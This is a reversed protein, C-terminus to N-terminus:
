LALSSGLNLDSQQRPIVDNNWNALATKFIIFCCRAANDFIGTVIWIVSQRNAGKWEKTLFGNVNGVKIGLPIGCMSPADGAKLRADAAKAQELAIEPTAHVVANLAQAGDAAKLCAETLEVSTIEGARLKDRAEAITLANLDTM